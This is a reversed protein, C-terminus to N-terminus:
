FDKCHKSYLFVMMCSQAGEARMQFSFSNLPVMTHWRLMSFVWESHTRINFFFTKLFFDDTQLNSNLNVSESCSIKVLIPKLSKDGFVITSINYILIYVGDRITKLYSLPQKWVSKSLATNLVVVSTKQWSM